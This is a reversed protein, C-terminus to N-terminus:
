LSLELPASAGREKKASKWEIFTKHRVVKIGEGALLKAYFNNINIAPSPLILSLPSRGREYEKGREFLLLLL